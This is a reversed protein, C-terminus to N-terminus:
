AFGRAVFRVVYAALNEGTSEGATNPIFSQVFGALNSTSRHRVLRPNINAADTAIAELELVDLKALGFDGATYQEGGAPYAADFTITGRHERRDGTVAKHTIAVTLGM